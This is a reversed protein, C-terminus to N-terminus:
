GWAISSVEDHMVGIQREWPTTWTLGLGLFDRHEFLTVRCFRYTRFSAIRDNWDNGVYSASFDWLDPPYACDRDTTYILSSGRFATDDYFISIPAEAMIAAGNEQGGIANIRAEFVPDNVAGRVNNPADTVRGGTADAIALTFSDYCTTPTHPASLNAVCHREKEATQAQAPAALSALMVGALAISAFPLARFRM